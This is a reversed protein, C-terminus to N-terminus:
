APLHVGSYSGKYGHYETAVSLKKVHNYARHPVKAVGLGAGVQLALLLTPETYAAAPRTM